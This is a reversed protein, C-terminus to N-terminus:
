SGCAAQVAGGGSDRALKAETDACCDVVLIRKLRFHDEGHEGCIMVVHVTIVSLVM